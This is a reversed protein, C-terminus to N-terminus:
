NTARVLWCAGDQTARGADMRGKVWRRTVDELAKRDKDSAERALAACPGFTSYFDVREEFTHGPMPLAENFPEMRMNKFGATELMATTFAKDGLGMPGPAYGTPRPPIAVVKSAEKTLENMFPNEEFSRWCAFTMEGKPKLASRLNAFAAAPDAFFMVGFRSVIKDYTRTFKHTSADAEAFDIPLGLKASRERASQLLVGSIDVGTVHGNPAVLKGIAITTPGCGCGIDLINEGSKIRAAEILRASVPSMMADLADQLRSWSSGMVGNWAERQQSNDQQTM